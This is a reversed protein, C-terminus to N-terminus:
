AVAGGQIAEQTAKMENEVELAKLTEAVSAMEKRLQERYIDRYKGVHGDRALSRFGGTATDDYEKYRSDGIIIHDLVEIGLIEGSEVVRKTAEIDGPSPAPNGDPHNHVIIIRSANAAIARKFVERPHALVTSATGRGVEMYGTVINRTDMTLLYLVEEAENQAKLVRNVFGIIEDPKTLKKPVDFKTSNEQELVLRFKKVITAM